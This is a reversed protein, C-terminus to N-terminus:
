LVIPTRVRNGWSGLAKHVIILTPRDITTGPDSPPLSPHLRRRHTCRVHNSRTGHHQRSAREMGSLDPQCYLFGCATIVRTANNGRPKRSKRSFRSPDPLRFASPNPGEFKTDRRDRVAQEDRECNV